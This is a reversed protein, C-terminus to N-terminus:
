SRLRGCIRQLESKEIPVKAIDARIQELPDSYQGFRHFTTRAKEIQSHIDAPLRVEVRSPLATEGKGLEWQGRRWRYKRSQVFIAKLEVKAGLLHKGPEM